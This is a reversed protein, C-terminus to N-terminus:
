IPQELRTVIERLAALPGADTMHRLSLELDPLTTGKSTDTGEIEDLLLAAGVGGAGSASGFLTSAPVRRAKRERAWLGAHYVVQAV